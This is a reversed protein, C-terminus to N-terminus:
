GIMFGFSILLVGIGMYFLSTEEIKELCSDSPNDPNFYVDVEAGEYYRAALEDAKSPISSAYSGGVHIRDNQYNRKGVQYKYKVTASYYTNASGFMANSGGASKGVKSKTIVGTVSAWSSTRAVKWRPVILGYVVACAGVFPFLSGIIEQM